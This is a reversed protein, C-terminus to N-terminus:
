EDSNKGDEETTTDKNMSESGKNRFLESSIGTQQKKAMEILPTLNEPDMGIQTLLAGIGNWLGSMGGEQLVADPNDVGLERLMRMQEQKAKDSVPPLNDTDMGIKAFADKVQADVETQQQELIKEPDTETLKGLMQDMKEEAIGQFDPSISSLDIGAQALMSQAQAKVTAPDIQSMDIKEPEPPAEEGAKEPPPEEEAVESVKEEHPSEEATVEPTEPAPTQDESGAM